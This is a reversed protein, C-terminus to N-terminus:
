KMAVGTSSEPFVVPVKERCLGNNSKERQITQGESFGGRTWGGEETGDTDNKEQRKNM